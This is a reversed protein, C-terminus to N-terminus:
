QKIVKFIQQQGNTNLRFLYIGKPYIHKSFDFMQKDMFGSTIFDQTQILKGDASYIQLSLKQGAPLQYILNFISNSPNPYVSITIGNYYVVSKVVSYIFGGDSYIVKLRYYRVGSKNPEQDLFNYSSPSNTNGSSTVQGIKSFLGTQYDANSRAVEIEYQVINNESQMTWDLQVNNGAAKKASFSIFQDRLGHVNGPGGNNLWFESFSQTKCEAYYGNLYPVITVFPSPIYNWVGLTDDILLGNEFQRLSDSYKSIGLEYASSPKTCSPCSNAFILSDSESDLFYIRIGVSDTLNENVPKITINRGLYYQGNFNPVSSTDIFAQVNTTSLNQNNPQISAILKGGSLFNIWNNGGSINQMVSSNMSVSDYISYTNDYIHIDDVAIGEFNVAQDSALVFRFQFRNLGAPLPITAVHWRTYGEISWLNNSTYNKNYWNYGQGFAGLRNWTKGDSTYEMYAGDCLTTGCDELDLAVSFSLTPNSLSSINFCPSYLYSTEQDNYNGTLNTKWVKSGSAARSIKTSSPTGYQWSSNVGGTYFGGNSNEFNELYPFSTIVPSNVLNITATDNNHYSDTPYDVWALLIHNGPSSLNAYTTFTYQLTSDAGVSSITESIITGGDIQYKVPVNTLITKASNRVTVKVPTNATLGCSVVIPTDISIMQMDNTVKYLHIDDFTYGAGGDNDAALIQGWQGWRVQFSSSYNQGNAILLDNLEISSSLKFTGDVNNQNVFLDYAKIWPKTDDGRIWVNNAANPLQGHNKYRFDLRIDDNAIDYASLNFTATLSDVNGAASYEEMDLTLAKNGSYAIGSNIFSRIRGLSTSNVFDYRDLGQLGIQRIDFSQAPAEELDDLFSTTLDIPPNDLQKIIVTMTDNISVPDIASTNTVVVQLIYTGVASFDYTTAFNHVYTSGGSVTTSVPEIIWPGGNVSYSMNFNSFISDDLNKIRASIITAASLATSTYKRGSSPSLIADMKLDNNSISGSCSGNNPKRPIATARRGPSGNLRARVSVWYVSDKSLGSFIYNTNTTIAVPVMDNGRLMMVEYDTAGVVPKWGLSIYGECQVPNLSDIIPPLITFAQSTSTLATSNCIVKVLALNTTVAPVFWKYLRLNSAVNNNIDTWSSGNDISYQITFTNAPNGYSDWSIYISDGQVLHEGGIPQTITTSVPIPDYVLFYEQPSNQPVSTGRVFTKYNGSVPNDIVVQEINNVHDEGTTAVNNVNAPITDLIRPLTTDGAIGIVKLDLDNVLTQTALLSAPPDNWYLMVKLQATNPPVVINQLNVAGTAVTSNYYNNNELMTVSRLLNMWGFGYSYDPGNNGLDTGGNCLLAKMLGNKPTSGSHLQRYRQYLLALGGAVAPSAMSTGNDYSYTNVPWTSVVASGQTTIEPKIRGDRVPGRSSFSSISGTETTSGVTIVNKASQYSGLVTQFGPPYIGCTSTGSNGAAFVSQLFPLDIAQQDLIQSYIDYTGDYNCDIINGYSNNTIVMGNDHVYTPAFALVNSFYQSLITAKPAFGRYREQIIGAGGVIGTVHVGHAGGAIAARNIIRNSFDIHQLPDADDGIGVVVSDGKLNRGGPLSSNLVNGRGNPVSKFILPQDQQHAAQVYEIFPLSALENLRQPAVRLAIVHYTKYLTSVIDFNRQKLENTVTDFSFTKPFRIWVDVTGAVKSAESPFNGNALSPEMKQAPSVNLISKAKVQQLVEPNINGDISVTYANNPIYDLLEIGAQQLQKRQEENLINEFQIIAFSKGNVKISKKNFDEIKEVTINKEPIIIGSKLRLSFKDQKQATSTLVILLLIAILPIPNSRM